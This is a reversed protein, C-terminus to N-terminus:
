MVVCEEDEGEKKQGPGGQVAEGEIVAQLWKPTGGFIQEQFAAPVHSAKQCFDELQGKVANREETV